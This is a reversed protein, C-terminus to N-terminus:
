NDSCHKTKCRNEYFVSDASWSSCNIPSPRLGQYNDGEKNICSTNTSNNTCKSNLSSCFEHAVNMGSPISINICDASM